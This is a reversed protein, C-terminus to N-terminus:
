ENWSAAASATMGAVNVSVGKTGDGTHGYISVIGDPMTGSLTLTRSEIGGDKVEFSIAWTM